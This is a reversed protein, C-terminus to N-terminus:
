TELHFNSHYKHAIVCFFYKCICRFFLTSSLKKRVINGHNKGKPYISIIFTLHRDIQFSWLKVIKLVLHLSFSSTSFFVEDPIKCLSWWFTSNEANQFMWFNREIVHFTSNWHHKTWFAFNNALFIGLCEIKQFCRIVTQWFKAMNKSLLADIDVM